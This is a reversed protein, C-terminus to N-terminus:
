HTICIKRNKNNRKTEIKTIKRLRLRKRFDKKTIERPRLKIRFNMKITVFGLTRM